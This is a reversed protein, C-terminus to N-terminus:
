KKEVLYILSSFEGSKLGKFNSIGGFFFGKVWFLPSKKYKESLMSIYFSDLLLPKIKKLNWNENSFYNEMGTKSFHWIHRPVDYAAWFNKYKKADYSTHNPVAIILLGNKKLKSHFKQIMEDRNEIHELVHWLTIVDLSENELEDLNSIFATNKAKSKAIKLADQDLEFGFTKYEPEMFELFSGAGCGYDLLNLNIGIESAITNRKFNLNFKQLFKYLKEKLSGQDQHHSIYQDSEYYKGLNEPLPDTKLIGPINTERIEFTEKTLFHDQIKM